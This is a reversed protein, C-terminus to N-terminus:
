LDSHWTLRDGGWAEAIEAARRVLEPAADLLFFARPSWPSARLAGAVDLNVARLRAALHRLENMHGGKRRTQHHYVVIARCPRQLSAIETPLVSKGASRRTMRLGEPAIGNDPDLFVLDTNGFREKM